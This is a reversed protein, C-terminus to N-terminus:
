PAPLRIAQPWAAKQTIKFRSPELLMARRKGNSFEVSMTLTQDWREVPHFWLGYRKDRLVARESQLDANDIAVRPILQAWVIDDSNPDGEIKTEFLIGPNRVLPVIALQEAQGGNEIVVESQYPSVQLGITRRLPLVRVINRGLPLEYTFAKGPAAEEHTSCRQYREIWHDSAPSITEQYSLGLEFPVPDNTAGDVVKASYAAMPRLTLPLEKINVPSSRVERERLFIVLNGKVSVTLRRHSHRHARPLTFRGRGDTVAREAPFGSSHAFLEAGKVPSGDSYHALTGQIVGSEYVSIPAPQQLRSLRGDFYQSKSFFPVDMAGTHLKGGISATVNLVATAPQRSSQFTAGTFSYEGSEDTTTRFEPLLDVGQYPLFLRSRLGFRVVEVKAGAVPDGEETQVRGAVRYEPALTYKKVGPHSWIGIAAGKARVVMWRATARQDLAGLDKLPVTGKEDALLDRRVAEGGNREVMTVRAGGAPRGDAHQILAREPGIQEPAAWGVAVLALFAGSFEKM